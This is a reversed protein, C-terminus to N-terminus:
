VEKEPLFVFIELHASLHWQSPSVLFLIELSHNELNGIQNSQLLYEVSWFLKSINMTIKKVILSFAHLTGRSSVRFPQHGFGRDKSYEAM